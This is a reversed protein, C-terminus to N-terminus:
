RRGRALRLWCGWIWLKGRSFFFVPNVAVAAEGVGHLVEESDCSDFGFGGGVLDGGHFNGGLAQHKLSVATRNKHITRPIRPQCLGFRCVFEIFCKFHQLVELDAM